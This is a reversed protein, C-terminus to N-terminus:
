LIVLKTTKTIKGSYYAACNYPDADLDNDNDYTSFMMNDHPYNGTTLGDGADGSYGSVKLPYLLDITGAHLTIVHLGLRICFTNSFQFSKFQYQTTRRTCSIKFALILSRVHLRFEEAESDIYFTSYNATASQGLFDEIYISLKRNTKTLEYM